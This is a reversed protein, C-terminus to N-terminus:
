ITHGHWMLVSEAARLWQELSDLAQSRDMSPHFIKEFRNINRIEEKQKGLAFLAAGYAPESERPVAVDFGLLEAQDRMLGDNQTMGGMAVLIEPAVGSKKEMISVVHAVQLASSELVARVLDKKDTGASLGFFAGRVDGKWCPTALGDLAPVFVVGNNSRGDMIATLEDDECFLGLSDRLWNLASGASYCIGNIQYSRIGDRSFAISSTLGDSPEEFRETLVHIFNGTGYTAVFDGGILSGSAVMAASSDILSAQIPIEYGFFSSDTFGYSANSDMIVPLLKEDILFLRLMETNWGNERPDRLLTCCSSGDDTAFIKGKTFNWILWTNLTGALISSNDRIDLSDLMWRIKFASYYSDCKVGTIKEIRVGDSKSLKDSNESERRDQWTIARYLPRGTERDWLLCTEGQHDIGLSVIHARSIDMAEKIASISLNLIEMPDQEAWGPHPFFRTVERKTLSLVKGAEDVAMCKIATTGVDLGIAAKM